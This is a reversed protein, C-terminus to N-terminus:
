FPASELATKLDWSRPTHNLWEFDFIPLVAVTSLRTPSPPIAGGCTDLLTVFLSRECGLTLFNLLALPPASLTEYWMGIWVLQPSLGDANSDLALRM